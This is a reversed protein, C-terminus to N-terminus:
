DGLVVLYNLRITNGNAAGPVGVWINGSSTFYTVSDLYTYAAGSDANMVGVYDKSASFERGFNAVFEDRTFLRAEHGSATSSSEVTSVVTGVFIKGPVRAALLERVAADVYGKTAYVAQLHDDTAYPTHSAVALSTTSDWSLSLSTLEVAAGGSGQLVYFSGLRFGDPLILSADVHQWTGTGKASVKASNYHSNGRQNWYLIKPVVEVSAGSAARVLLNVHLTRDSSVFDTSYLPVIISERTITTNNAPISWVGNAYTIGDQCIFDRGAILNKVLRCEVATGAGCTHTWGTAKKTGNEYWMLTGLKAVDQNTLLEGGRYVCATLRSTDGQDDAPVSVLEIRLTRSYADDATTKTAALETKTDTLETKTNTLETKTNTLEADISDLKSKDDASMLGATSATATQGTTVITADGSGDFKASGSVAGSLAITRATSLKAASKATGDLTSIDHTHSKQAFMTKMRDWLAELGSKDLYM